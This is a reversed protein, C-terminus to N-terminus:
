YIALIKITSLIFYIFNFGETKDTEGRGRKRKSQIICFTMMVNVQWLRRCLWTCYVLITQVLHFLYFCHWGLWIQVSIFDLNGLPEWFRISVIGWALAWWSRWFRLHLSVHGDSSFDKLYHSRKWENFLFLLFIIMDLCSNKM